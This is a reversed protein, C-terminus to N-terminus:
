LLLTVSSLLGYVPMVEGTRFSFLFLVMFDMTFTEFVHDSLKLFGDEIEAARQVGIVKFTRYIGKNRFQESCKTSMIHM